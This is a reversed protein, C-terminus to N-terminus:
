REKDSTAVFHGSFAQSSNLTKHVFVFTIKSGAKLFLLKIEEESILTLGGSPIKAPVGVKEM